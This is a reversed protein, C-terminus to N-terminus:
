GYTLVCLTLRYTKIRFLVWTNNNNQHKKKKKKILNYKYANRRPFFFFLAFGVIILIINYIYNNCYFLFTLSWLSYVIITVIYRCLITVSFLINHCVIFFFFFVFFYTRTGYWMCYTCVYRVCNWRHIIHNCKKWLLRRITIYLNTFKLSIIM